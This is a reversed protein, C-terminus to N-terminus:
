SRVQFNGSQTISKVGKYPKYNENHLSLSEVKLGSAAYQNVRFHVELVPNSVPPPTGPTISVNGSLIPTKDKPMKGIKWTCVKEMEDYHVDGWTATLNTSSILKSFPIVIVVDGITQRAMSRPNVTIHVRGGSESFSIQPKVDIPIESSGGSVRYSMLKFMGDPPVFSILSSQEWRGFRVCPHFSVDDLIRPNYFALNLDPMGSLHCNCSIDGWIDCKIPRGREIICDLEETIDFYIENTTYKVGSARWPCTSSFGAPLQSNVGSPTSLTLRRSGMAIEGGLSMPLPVTLSGPLNEMLDAFMSNKNIMATLQNPYTTFPFGGDMMEDLVQYVIVFKEKLTEETIEEMYSHFVEVITHLFEIVFLPQTETQSIALFFLGNHQIHVMYWKSSSIVPPVDSSDKVELVADWFKDCIARNVLGCYHKEIIVDGHPNIIFISELM